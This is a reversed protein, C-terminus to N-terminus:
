CWVSGLRTLPRDVGFVLWEVGFWVAVVGAVVGCGGLWELGFRLWGAVGFGEGGSLFLCAGWLPM